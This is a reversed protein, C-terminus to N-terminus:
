LKPVQRFHYKGKRKMSKGSQRLGNQRELKEKMNSSSNSDWFIINVLTMRLFQRTPSEEMRHLGLSNLVQGILGTLRQTQTMTAM